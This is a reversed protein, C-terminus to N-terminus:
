RCYEAIERSRLRKLLWQFDELSVDPPVGHDLSPVYGRLKLMPAVKTQIEQEMLDRSKGLLRKDLGGFIVLKPHKKRVECIDMGAQVEFPMLSRVGVEELLPILKSVEGDSDVLTFEIGLDCLEELVKKFYPTIFERYSKPSIFMGNKYCMDEWFSAWIPKHKVLRKANGVVLKEWAKGIAHLLEPDDHIAMMFRELGLLHRAAGFLGCFVIGFPYDCLKAYYISAKDFLTSFRDPIDPDLRPLLHQLDDMNEVPSKITLPITSHSDIFIKEQGGSENQWIEYNGHSSIMKRPFKPWFGPQIHDGVVVPIWRDYKFYAFARPDSNVWFPLGQRRWKTLTEIWFGLAEFRWPRDTEQFNFIAKFREKTKM